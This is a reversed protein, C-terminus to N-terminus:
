LQINNSISENTKIIFGKPDLYFNCRFLTPNQSLRLIDAVSTTKVASILNPSLLPIYINRLLLKMIYHKLSSTDPFLYFKTSLNYVFGYLLLFILLKAKLFNSCLLFPTGVEWITVWPYLENYLHQVTTLSSYISLNNFTLLLYTPSVVAPPTSVRLWPSYSLDPWECLM